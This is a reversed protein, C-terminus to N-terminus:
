PKPDLYALNVNGPPSDPAERGQEVGLPPLSRQPPSSIVASIGSPSTASVAIGGPEGGDNFFVRLGALPTDPSESWSRGEEKQKEGAYPRHEEISPPTRESSGPTSSSFAGRTFPTVVPSFRKVASQPTPPEMPPASKRPPPLAARLAAVEAAAARAEAAKAEAEAAVAAAAAAAANARALATRMVDAEQAAEAAHRAAKAALTAKSVAMAKKWGIVRSTGMAREMGKTSGPTGAEEDWHQSGGGCSDDDFDDPNDKAVGWGDVAASPQPKCGGCVCPAYVRWCCDMTEDDTEADASLRLLLRGAFWRTSIVVPHFFLWGFAEYLGFVYSYALFTNFGDGCGGSEDMVHAFVSSTTACALSFGACVAFLRREMRRTALANPAAVARESAGIAALRLAIGLVIEYLFLAGFVWIQHTWFGGTM